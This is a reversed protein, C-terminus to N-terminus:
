GDSVDPAAQLGSSEEMVLAGATFAGNVYAIKDGDPSWTCNYQSTAADANITVSAGPVPLGVKKVDGAGTETYCMEQGDPSIAPQYQDIGDAGAGLVTTPAGSNDAPERVIDRDNAGAEQAYYITTSDPSWDPKGEAAAM